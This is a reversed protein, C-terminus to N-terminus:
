PSKPSTLWYVEWLIYTNHNNYKIEHGNYYKKDSFKNIFENKDLKILSILYDRFAIAVLRSVSSKFFNRMDILSSYEEQEFKVHVAKWGADPNREQYRIAGKTRHLKGARKMLMQSVRVILESHSIKLKKAERKLLKVTEMDLNVTTKIEM